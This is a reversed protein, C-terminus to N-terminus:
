PKNGEASQRAIFNKNWDRIAEIRLNCAKLEDLRVKAHEEWMAERQVRSAKVYDNVTVPPPSVVCYDMLADEPLVPVNRTVVKENACAVLFTAVVVTLLVNKVM